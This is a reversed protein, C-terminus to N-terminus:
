VRVTQEGGRRLKALVEMQAAFTRLLKIAMNGSAEFPPIQEARQVRTLCKMAAVHTAAMQVGLMAEVEDKAGIGSIVALASNMRDETQEGGPAAGVADALLFLQHGAFSESTTGFTERLQALWGRVDNHPVLGETGTGDVAVPETRKEQREQAVAIARQEAV